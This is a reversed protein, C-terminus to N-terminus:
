GLYPFSFILIFALSFRRLNKSIEAMVTPAPMKVDHLLVAVTIGVAVVWGVVSIAVLTGIAAGVVAGAATEV